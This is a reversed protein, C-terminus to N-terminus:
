PTAAAGAHRSFSHSVPAIAVHNEFRSAVLARLDDDPADGADGAPDIRAAARLM